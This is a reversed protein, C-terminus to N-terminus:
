LEATKNNEDDEIVGNLFYVTDLTCLFAANKIDEATVTKIGKLVEEVTLNSEGIFSNLYYGELAYLNDQTQEFSYVVTKYANEIDEDTIEGKQLLSLQALVEDITKKKNEKSIGASVLMIGKLRDIESSCYYCLSLKERVNLFLRSNPGGGFIINFMILSFMHDQYNEIGLRFGMVLISQNVQMDENYDNVKEAKKIYQTKITINNHSFDFLKDAWEKIANEDFRGFCSVILNSTKLLKDYHEKLQEPTIAEIDNIEGLEDLSYTENKCMNKICNDKAYSRKNNKRSKINNILNLKEIKVFDSKFADDIILPKRIMEYLFEMMNKTIDENELTYCNAIFSISFRVLQNEGKKGVNVTYTAGYNNELYKNVDNLTQYKDNALRMVAVLLANNAANENLPTLFSVSIVNRTFKDTKYLSVQIDNKINIKIM